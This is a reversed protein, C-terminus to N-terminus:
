ARCIYMYTSMRCTYTYIYIYTSWQRKTRLLSCCHSPSGMSQRTLLTRRGPLSPGRSCSGPFPCCFSPILFLSLSLSLSASPPSRPLSLSASKKKLRPSVGRVGGYLSPPCAAPLAWPWDHSFGPDALCAGFDRQRPILIRRGEAILIRRGEALLIRRAPPM